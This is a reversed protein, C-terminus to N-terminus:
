GESEPKLRQNVADNIVLTALNTSESKAYSMLVPELENDVIWLGAMTSFIFFAFTLM